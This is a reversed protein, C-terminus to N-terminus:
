RKWVEYFNNKCPADWPCNKLKISEICSFNNKEFQEKIYYYHEINEFDNEIIILRIKNLIYPMNKLIFYFAGECDIVLVNFSLNYKKELTLFDIINCSKLNNNIIHNKSLPYTEQIKDKYVTLSGHFYLPILSLASNEVNFNKNNFDRNELLKIYFNNNPEMTVLNNQYELISSIIIANRGMNGGIELVIDNKNIYKCSLTQEVFEEDFSGHVLKLNKQIIFLYM